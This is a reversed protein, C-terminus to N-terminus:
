KINHVTRTQGISRKVDDVLLINAYSLVDFVKSIKKYTLEEIYFGASFSGILMLLMLNFVAM